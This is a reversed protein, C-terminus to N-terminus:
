QTEAIKEDILQPAQNRLRRDIIELAIITEALTRQLVYLWGAWGDFICRKWLLTYLFVIVPASWGMRRIRDMRSLERHLTSTLYDVERGAYDQQSGFWRTLPKRDDHFICGNLKHVAGDIMVRHGHGENRYTALHRRYLVTRPPYLTASLPKGYIRYVFAARYGAIDSPPALRCIELGLEASLEYDADLSLVWPTQVETLGFNCQDAFTNFKRTVVRAQSCRAVTTLTADTSGSDIILIRGAWKIADLTRAINAEENYTLIMVTLQDAHGIAQGSTGSLATEHL